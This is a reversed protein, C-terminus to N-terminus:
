MMKKCSEALGSGFNCNEKACSVSTNNEVTCNQGLAYSGESNHLGNLAVGNFSESIAESKNKPKKYSKIYFDSFLIIFLTCNAIMSYAM